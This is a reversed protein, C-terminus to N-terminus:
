PRLRQVPPAAPLPINNLTFPIRYERWGTLVKLQLVAQPGPNATLPLMLKDIGKPLQVMIYGGSIAKGKQLMTISQFVGAPAMIEVILFRSHRAKVVSIIRMRIHAARLGTDSLPQGMRELPHAVTITTIKGGAAVDVAGSLKRIAAAKPSPAAFRLLLPFGVEGAQQMREYVPCQVSVVQQFRPAMPRLTHGTNLVETIIRLHHYFNPNQLLPSVVQLCVTLGLHRSIAQAYPTKNTAFILARSETVYAVRTQVLPPSTTGVARVQPGTGGMFCAPVAITIFIRTCQPFKM